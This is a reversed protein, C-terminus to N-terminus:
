VPIVVDPTRNSEGIKKFKSVVMKAFKKDNKATAVVCQFEFSYECGVEVKETLSRHISILGYDSGIYIPSYLEINKLYLTIATANHILKEDELTIRFRYNGFKDFSVATSQKVFTTM